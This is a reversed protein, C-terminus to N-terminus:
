AMPWNCSALVDHQAANGWVMRALLGCGVAVCIGHKTISTLMATMLCLQYHASLVSEGGIATGGNGGNGNNGAAVGGNGSFDGSNFSGGNANNGNNDGGNGGAGGVVANGSSGTGVPGVGVNNDGAVGVIYPSTCQAM